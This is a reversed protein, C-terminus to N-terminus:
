RGSATLRVGARELLAADDEAGAPSPPARRSETLPLPKGHERMASELDAVLCSVGDPTQITPVGLLRVVRRYAKTDLGTVEKANKESALLPRAAHSHHHQVVTLGNSADSTDPLGENM